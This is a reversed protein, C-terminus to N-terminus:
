KNNVTVGPWDDTRFPSAPLNEQNYLNCGEPNDAWAYRVAVPNAIQDSSVVVTDGDISAEAWVFKRDEGAVAFQELEGGKSKLGSGTHDFFLRIKNGEIKMSRYKPGSYVIEKGFVTGEAWLALRKGVEQKNRPHIDAADGIDIIVAQGTNPLSLAMSQAERLEAWASDSPNSPPAMFNALQVFGFPFDGQGWQKRWDQIMSPFLQRYQYARSANSEGQYWIAGKITYPILPALMANYLVTAVNPNSNPRQPVPSLDATSKGQHFSWEGALSVSEGTSPNELRLQDPRGYIGGDGGTDLIRVAIVNKGSRLLRSPIQYDRGQLWDTKGGVSEGNVFTTDLDDIPGLHLILDSSDWGAPLDITKRYWVIGDFGDMGSKEWHGPLNMAKWDSVNFDPRAFQSGDASGPDNKIWWESMLKEFSFSGNEISAALEQLQEVTPAFDPLHQLTDASTWAECITGGWSTHILGVPVDLTEHLHRGFFYATASFGGWGGTSITTPNCELWQPSTSLRDKPSLATDKLVTFLRINPYNAAAIEQEADYVGGVGMEMNSQGSCIWVEGFLVNELTIKNQGQVTFVHPGGAEFPGIQVTWEGNSDAETTASKGAVSVTVKECSAAEGWVQIPRGRQLVMNDTFLQPLEVDAHVSLITLLVSAPVLIRRISKMQWM